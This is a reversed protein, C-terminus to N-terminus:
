PGRRRRADSVPKVTPPRMLSQFADGFRLQIALGGGIYPLVLGAALAQDRTTGARIGGAHAAAIATKEVDSLVPSQGSPSMLFYFEPRNSNPPRIHALGYAHGFEHAVVGAASVSSLTVISANPGLPEPGYNACGAANGCAGALIRTAVTFAPLQAAQTLSHLDDDAVETTGTVAGEVVSAYDDMAAQALARVSDGAERSVPATLHTGDRWVGVQVSGLQSARFESMPGANFYLADIVNRIDITPLVLESSPASVRAGDIAAVRAYYTDATRPAVFTYLPTAVDVTAVDALMSASGILVRYGSAHGTWSIVIATNALTIKQSVIGLGTPASLDAPSPASPANSGCTTTALAVTLATLALYGRIM